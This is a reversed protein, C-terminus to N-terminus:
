WMREIDWSNLVPPDDQFFFTNTKTVMGLDTDFEVDYYWILCSWVKPTNQGCSTSKTRTPTGFMRQIESMPLGSKLSMVNANTFKLNAQNLAVLCGSASLLFTVLLFSRLNRFTLM